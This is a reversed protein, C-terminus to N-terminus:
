WMKTFNELYLQAYRKILEALHKKGEEITMSAYPTFETHIYEAIEEPTLVSIEAKTKLEISRKAEEKVKDQVFQGYHISKESM